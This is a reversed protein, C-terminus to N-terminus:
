PLHPVLLALPLDQHGRHPSLTGPPSLFGRLCQCLRGAVRQKLCSPFVVLVFFTLAPLPRETVELLLLSSTFYYVSLFSIKTCFSNLILLKGRTDGKRWGQRADRAPEERMQPWGAGAQGAARGEILRLSFSRWCMNLSCLFAPCKRRTSSVQSILLYLVRVELLLQLTGKLNLM